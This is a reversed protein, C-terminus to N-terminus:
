TRYSEQLRREPISAEFGLIVSTFREKYEHYEDPKILLRVEQKCIELVLIKRRDVLFETTIMVKPM